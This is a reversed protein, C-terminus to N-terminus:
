PKVKSQMNNYLRIVIEHYTFYLNKSCTSTKIAIYDIDKISRIPRPLWIRRQKTLANLLAVYTFSDSVLKFVKERNRDEQYNQTWEFLVQCELPPPPLWCITVYSRSKSKLSQNQHKLFYFTMISNLICSWAKIVSEIYNM